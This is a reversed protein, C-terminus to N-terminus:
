THTTQANIDSQNIASAFPCLHLLFPSTVVSAAGALQLLMECHCRTTHMCTTSVYITDVRSQKHNPPVRPMCMSTLPTAHWVLQARACAFTRAIIVFM